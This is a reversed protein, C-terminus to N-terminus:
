VVNEDQQSSPASRRADPLRTGPMYLGEPADGKGYLARLWLDGNPTCIGRLPGLERCPYTPSGSFMAARTNNGEADTSAKYIFATASFFAGVDYRVAGDLSIRVSTIGTDEDTEPKARVTAVVPFPLDRLFMLVNSMSSKLKRFKEWKNDKANGSSKGDKPATKKKQEDFDRDYYAQMETLSDVGLIKYGAAELEGSVIAKYLARWDDVSKIELIDCDPSAQQITSVSQSGEFVAVLMKRDPTCFTALTHTKGSGHEGVLLFKPTTPIDSATKVRSLISTSPSPAPASM